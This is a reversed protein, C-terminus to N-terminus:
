LRRMEDALSRASDEDGAAELERIRALLNRARERRPGFALRERWLADMEAALTPHEDPEPEPERAEIARFALLTFLTVLTGWAAVQTVLTVVREGATFRLGLEDADGVSGQAAIWAVLALVALGLAAYGSLVVALIGRALRRLDAAVLALAGLAFVGASLPGFDWLAVGAREAASLGALDGAFREYLSAATDASAAVVITAGGVRLLDARTWDPARVAVRLIAALAPAPM